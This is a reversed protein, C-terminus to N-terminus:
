TNVVAICGAVGDTRDFNYKKKPGGTVLTRETPKAESGIVAARHVVGIPVLANIGSGAMKRSTDLLGAVMSPDPDIWHITGNIVEHRRSV